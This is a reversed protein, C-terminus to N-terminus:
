PAHVERARLGEIMLRAEDQLVPVEAGAAAATSLGHLWTALMGAAVEPTAGARLEGAAEAEALRDELFRRISAESSGCVSPVGETDSSELRAKTLFCGRRAGDGTIFDVTNSLFANLADLGEGEFQRRGEAARANYHDLARVFLQRKGGFANYLSQRGLGTAEELDAISTGEYGHTWFLQVARDLVETEDFTRPRAMSDDGRAVM